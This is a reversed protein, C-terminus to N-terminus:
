PLFDCLVSTVCESAWWMRPLPVSTSIPWRWPLSVNVFAWWMWINGVPVLEAFREGLFKALLLLLFLSSLIIITKPELLCKCYIPKGEIEKEKARCDLSGFFLPLVEAFSICDCLSPWSFIMLLQPVWGLVHQCLDASSVNQKELTMDMTAPEGKAILIRVGWCCM